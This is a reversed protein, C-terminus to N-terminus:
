RFIYKKSPTTYRCSHAITTFRIFPLFFFGESRSDLPNRLGLGIFTDKYLLVIVGQKWCLM